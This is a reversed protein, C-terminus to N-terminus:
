CGPSKSRLGTEAEMRQNAKQYFGVLRHDDQVRETPAVESKPVNHVGWTLLVVQKGVDNVLYETTVEYGCARLCRALTDGILPNRARGVHLPGTPNVSTHELLWGLM